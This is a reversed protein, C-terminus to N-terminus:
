ILRITYLQGTKVQHGVQTSAELWEFIIEWYAEKITYNFHMPCNFTTKCKRRSEEQKPACVIVWFIFLYILLNKIRPIVTIKNVTKHCHKNKM